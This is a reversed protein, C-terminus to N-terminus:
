GFFSPVKSIELSSKEFAAAVMKVLRPDIRRM